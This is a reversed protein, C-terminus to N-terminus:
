DRLAKDCFDRIAQLTKRLWFLEAEPVINKMERSGCRRCFRNGPTDEYITVSDCKKCIAYKKEAM